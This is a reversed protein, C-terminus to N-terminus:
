LLSHSHARLYYLPTNRDAGLILKVSLKNFYALGVIPLYEKVRSRDNVLLQELRKVVNLVLPKGEETHYAGVELNLKVHSSDKNYAVTVYGPISYKTNYLLPKPLHMKEPQQQQYLSPEWCILVSNNTVAPM